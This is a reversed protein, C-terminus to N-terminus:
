RRAEFRWLKVVFRLPVGHSLLIGAHALERFPPPYFDAVCWFFRRLRKM